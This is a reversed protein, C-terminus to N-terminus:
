QGGDGRKDSEKFYRVFDEMMKFREKSNEFELEIMKRFDTFKSRLEEDPLVPGQKEEAAASAAAAPDPAFDQPVSIRETYFYDSEWEYQKIDQSEVFDDSDHNEAEIISFTQDDARIVTYYEKSVKNQIIDNEDLIHIRRLASGPFMYGNVYKFDYIAGGVDAPKVVNSPYVNGFMDLQDATMMFEVGASRPYWITDKIAKLTDPIHYGIRM